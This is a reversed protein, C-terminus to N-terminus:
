TAEEPNAPTCQVDFGFRGDGARRLQRLIVQCTRGSATFPLGQGISLRSSNGGLTVGAWTSRYGYLGLVNGEGPLRLSEGVGLWHEAGGAYGDKGDLLQKRLSAIEREAGALQAQYRQAYGQQAGIEGRLEGVIERLEEPSAARIKELASQIADFSQRQELVVDDLSAADTVEGWGWNVLLGVIAGLLAGGIGTVIPHRLMAVLSAKPVASAATEAGTTAQLDAM